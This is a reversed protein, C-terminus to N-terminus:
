PNGPLRETSGETIARAINEIASKIMMGYSDDGVADSV